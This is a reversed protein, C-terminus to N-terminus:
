VKLTNHYTFYTLGLFFFGFKYMPCNANIFCSFKQRNIENLNVTKLNIQAITHILLENQKIALYYKM